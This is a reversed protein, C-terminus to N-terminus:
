VLDSGEWMVSSRRSLLYSYGSHWIVVRECWRAETQILIWCRLDFLCDFSIKPHIYQNWSISSVHKSTQLMWINNWHQALTLSSPGVNFCWQTFAGLKGPYPNLPPPPPSLPCTPFRLTGIVYKTAKEMNNSLIGCSTVGETDQRGVGEWTTMAVDQWSSWNFSSCPFGPFKILLGLELTIGPWHKSTSSLIPTEFVQKRKQSDNTLNHREFGHAKARGGRIVIYWKKTLLM